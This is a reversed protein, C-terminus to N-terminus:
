EEGKLISQIEEETLIERYKEILEEETEILEPGWTARGHEKFVRYAERCSKLVIAPDKPKAKKQIDYLKATLASGIKMQLLLGDLEYAIIELCQDIDRPPIDNDLLTNIYQSVQPINKWKNKLYNLTETRDAVLECIFFRNLM